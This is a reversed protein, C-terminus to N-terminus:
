DACGPIVMRHIGFVGEPVEPGQDGVLNRGREVNIGFTAVAPSVLFTKGIFALPGAFQFFPQPFDM